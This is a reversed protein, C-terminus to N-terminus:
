TVWLAPYHRGCREIEAAADYRYCGSIANKVKCPDGCIGKHLETVIDLDASTGM